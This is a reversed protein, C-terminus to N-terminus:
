CAVAKSGGDVHTARSDVVRAGLDYENTAVYYAGMQPILPSNLVTYVGDYSDDTEVLYRMNYERDSQERIHGDRETLIKVGVVAM